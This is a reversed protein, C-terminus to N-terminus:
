HAAKLFALRAEDHSLRGDAAASCKALADAWRSSLKAHQMFNNAQAATAITIILGGDNLRVPQSWENSM